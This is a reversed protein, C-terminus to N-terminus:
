RELLPDHCVDAAHGATADLFPGTVPTAKHTANGSRTSAGKGSCLGDNIARQDLSFHEGEFHVIVPSSEDCQAGFGGQRPIDNVSQLKSNETYSKLVSKLM